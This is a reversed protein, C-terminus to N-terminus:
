HRYAFRNLYFEIIRSFLRNHRNDPPHDSLKSRSSNIVALSSKPNVHTRKKGKRDFDTFFRLPFFLAVMIGWLSSLQPASSIIILAREHCQSKQM